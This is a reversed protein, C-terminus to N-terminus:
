CQSAPVYRVLEPMGYPHNQSLMEEDRMIRLPEAFTETVGSEWSCQALAHGRENLLVVTYCSVPDDVGREKLPEGGAQPIVLMRADWDQIHWHGPTMIDASQAVDLEFMTVM